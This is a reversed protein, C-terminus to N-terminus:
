IDHRWPIDLPLDNAIAKNKFTFALTWYGGGKPETVKYRHSAVTMLRDDFERRFYKYASVSHQEAIRSVGESDLGDVFEQPSLLGHHTFREKEIIEGCGTCTDVLIQDNSWQSEGHRNYNEDLLVVCPLLYGECFSCKPFALHLVDLIDFTNKDLLAVKYQPGSGMYPEYDKFKKVSINTTVDFRVPQTGYTGAFDAHEGVDGAVTLNFESSYKEYFQLEAKLGVYGPQGLGKRYGELYEYACSFGKAHDHVTSFLVRRIRNYEAASM